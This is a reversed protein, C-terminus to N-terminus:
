GNTFEVGGQLTWTITNNIVSSSSAKYPVSTTFTSPVSQGPGFYRTKIDGVDVAQQPNYAFAANDPATSGRTGGQTGPNFGGWVAYSSSYTAVVYSAASVTTAGTIARNVIPNRSYTASSM